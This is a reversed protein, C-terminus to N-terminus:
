RARPLGKQFVRAGPRVAVRSVARPLRRPEPVVFGSRSKRAVTGQASSSRRRRATLVLEIRENEPSAPGAGRVKTITAALTRKGGEEPKPSLTLFIRETDDAVDKHRGFNGAQLFLVEAPM